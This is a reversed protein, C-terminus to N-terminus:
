KRSRDTINIKRVLHEMSQILNEFFFLIKCQFINNIQYMDPIICTWCEELLLSLDPFSFKRFKWVNCRKRALHQQDQPPTSVEEPTRFVIHWSVAMKQPDLIPAMGNISVFINNTYSINCVSHTYSHAIHISTETKFYQISIKFNDEDLRSM